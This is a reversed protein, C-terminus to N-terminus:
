PVLTLHRRRRPPPSGEVETAAEARRAARALDRERVYQKLREWKGPDYKERPVDGFTTLIWARADNIARRMRTTMTEETMDAVFARSIGYRLQEPLARYCDRCIAWERPAIRDCSPMFCPHAGTGAMVRTHYIARDMDDGGLGSSSSATSIRRFSGRVLDTTIIGSRIM